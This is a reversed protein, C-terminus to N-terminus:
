ASLSGPDHSLLLSSSSADAIATGKSFSPLPSKPLSPLTVALFETCEPGPHICAVNSPLMSVIPNTKDDSKPSVAPVPRTEGVGHVPTSKKHHTKPVLPQLAFLVTPQPMLEKCNIPEPTTETSSPESSWARMNESLQEQESTPLFASIDLHQTPCHSLIEREFEVLQGMFNLNPSIAPRKEKVFQYAQQMTLGFHQMLYAIVLTVSRSIGAMCHILICSGSSRVQETHTHPPPPPSFFMPYTHPHISNSICHYLHVQVLM